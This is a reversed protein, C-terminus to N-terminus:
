KYAPRFTVTGSGAGLIALKNNGPQLKFYTGGFDKLKKVPEGNILLENTQHNFTVKDGQKAIYPVGVDQNIKYASISDIGQLPTQYATHQGTHVVVQAVQSTFQNANDRWEVSRRSTHKGDVIKAIYARWVNGEREIRLLGQFDNWEWGNDGSEAILFHNTTSGGARVEGVSQSKGGLVDKISVKALQNGNADLQYIEARGIDEPETNEFTVNAELRFDSLAESLSTKIAPGHWSTGTGYDATQFRYGNSTMTGAITGDIEGANATTWGVLSSADDFLIREYKEFVNQGASFPKGLMMYENNENAVMVFTTDETVDLEFIPSTPATGPVNIITGQGGLIATREPAYKYPDCLFTLTGSRLSVFKEYDAMDGDIKGVYTRSPNDSFQIEKMEDTLLWLKLEDLIQQEQEKDRVIFGVPQQVYLMGTESSIVHAGVMGPVSLLNNAIPAFPSEKRGQLLYMWGKTEGNFTLENPLFRM